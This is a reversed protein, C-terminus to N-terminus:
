ATGDHTRGTHKGRSRAAIQTAQRRSTGGSRPTSPPRPLGRLIIEVMEDAAAKPSSALTPLVDPRIYDQGLTALTRAVSATDVLAIDGREVAWDLLARCVAVVYDAHEQNRRQVAAMSDLDRAYAATTGAVAVTAAALYGRLADLPAAQPDVTAMADRGVHWLHTDLVTLVLEDRSPALGYLTRLSCGLRSAIEAMTLEAFGDAFLAGLQWLLERQRDTLRAM